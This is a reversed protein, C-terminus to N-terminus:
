GGQLFPTRKLFGRTQKGLLHPERWMVDISSIFLTFAVNLMSCKCNSGGRQQWQILLHPHKFLLLGSPMVDSKDNFAVNKNSAYCM